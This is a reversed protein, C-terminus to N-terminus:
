KIEEKEQQEYYIEQNLIDIVLDIDYDVCKDLNELYLEFDTNTIDFDRIFCYDFDEELFGGIQTRKINPNGKSDIYLLYTYSVEKDKIVKNIVERIKEKIRERVEKQELLSIYEENKM